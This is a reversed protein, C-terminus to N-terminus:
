DKPPRATATPLEPKAPRDDDGHRSKGFSGLRWFVIGLVIVGAINLAADSAVVGEVGHKESFRTNVLGVYAIAANGAATFMSYRTSAAKPDKGITELVTATFAAYCFGTILAYTLAGVTFTTGSRPSLAMGIGVVATLAGSLLYMARRNTRDCLFGGALAGLATLGQGIPGGVFALVESVKADLLVKAAEPSLSALQHAVDPRVYEKAIASFYNSLAATGVPSVCLLLGTVGARTWLVSKVERLLNRIAECLSGESAREPEDIALVAFAPVIMIACLVAGVTTPAIGHGIMYVAVAASIGGGSLNGVNYWAGAKGRNADSVTTAMLGGNCSGVLGSIMQAVFAFGLFPILHDPLSMQLAAFLCGAGLLTVIILWHKRRPGFDIVPAYLFQFVTPLFLLTVFWGIKEVDIDARSALYPMVVGIFSGAVGYPTGTLAFLWPRSTRPEPM